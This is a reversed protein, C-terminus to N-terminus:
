RAGGRRAGGDTCEYPCRSLSPAVTVESAANSQQVRLEGREQRGRHGAELAVAEEASFIRGCRGGGSSSQAGADDADGANSDAHGDAHGDADAASAEATSKADAERQRRTTQAKSRAKSSAKKFVM